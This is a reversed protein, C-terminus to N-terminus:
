TSVPHFMAGCRERGINGLSSHATVAATEASQSPDSPTALVTGHRRTLGSRRVCWLVGDDRRVWMLYDAFSLDALLQWWVV